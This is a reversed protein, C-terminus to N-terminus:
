RVIDILGRLITEVMAMFGQVAIMPRAALDAGRRVERGLRDIWPSVPDLAEPLWGVLRATGYSLAILVALPIVGMLCLPMLVFVLSVDAWIRPTGFGNTLVVAVLGAVVAAGVLLPLGIWLWPRGRPRIRPKPDEWPYPEYDIMHQLQLM